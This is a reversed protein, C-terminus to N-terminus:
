ILQPKCLFYGENQMIESAKEIMINLLGLLDAETTRTNM